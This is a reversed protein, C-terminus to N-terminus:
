MHLTWVNMSLDLLTLFTNCVLSLLVSATALTITGETMSQNDLCGKTGVYEMNPYQINPKLQTKDFRSPTRLEMTTELLM